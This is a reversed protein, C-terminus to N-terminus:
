LEDDDDDEDWDNRVVFHDGVELAPGRVLAGHRDPVTFYTVGHVTGNHRGVPEDLHVGVWYGADSAGTTSMTGVWVVTGRRQGINLQCRQGLVVHAVSESDYNPVSEDLTTATPFDNPALLQGQRELARQNQQQQHQAAHRQLTFTPDQQVQERKWARLTKPKADYEADTLTFKPVLRTDELGGHASLSHPNTDVVHITWGHHPVFYGLVYSDYEAALPPIEWQLAEADPARGNGSSSSINYFQLHQYQPPTGTHLHIRRKVADISDTRHLRLEVHRQTLNSHTVDVLITDAAVHEYPAADRATVYARVALLDSNGSM